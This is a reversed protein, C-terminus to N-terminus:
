EPCQARYKLKDEETPQHEKPNYQCRVETNTVAIGRNENENQKLQDCKRM